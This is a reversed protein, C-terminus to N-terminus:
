AKTDVEKVGKVDEMKKEDAKKSKEEDDKQAAAAKESAKEESDVKEKKALETNTRVPATATNSGGSVPAIAM